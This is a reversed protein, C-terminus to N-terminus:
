PELIESPHSNELLKTELSRTILLTIVLVSEQILTGPNGTHHQFDSKVTEEDSM